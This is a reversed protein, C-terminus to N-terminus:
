LTLQQGPSALAQVRAAWASHSLSDIKGRIEQEVEDKSLSVHALKSVYDATDNIATARVQEPQRALVNASLLVLDEMMSKDHETENPRKSGSIGFLTHAVLFSCASVVNWAYDHQKAKALALQARNSLTDSMSVQKEAKLIDNKFRAREGTIPNLSGWLNAVNNGMALPRAIWGRPNNAMTQAITPDPHADGDFIEHGRKKDLAFTALWGTSILFGALLKGNNRNGPKLAAHITFLGGATESLCKIQVIHKRLWRDTAKFTGSQHLTDPNLENGQPVQIGKQHLHRKLGEAAVGLEEDGKDAGYLTMLVDGISFAGGIMMESRDNATFVGGPNHRGRQIGSAFFAANGLDYFIASLFLSKGRVRDRFGHMKKDDETVEKDPEGQALGAKEIAALLPKESKIGRVQITARGDRTDMLTSLKNAGLAVRLQELQLADAQDRAIITAHAIGPKPSHVEIRDILASDKYHYIPM